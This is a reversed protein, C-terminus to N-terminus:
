ARPLRHRGRVSQTRKVTPRLRNTRSSLLQSLAHLADVCTFVGCAAGGAAIVVVCGYRKRAMEEAVSEVRATRPVTFVDPEMADAVTARMTAAHLCRIMTDADRASLVGVVKGEDVVPLHRIHHHAMRDRAEMLLEYPDACVPARTM